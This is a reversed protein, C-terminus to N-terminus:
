AAAATHFQMRNLETYYGNAALLEAHSGQEVIRGERMVFIRDANHITSLRHAIVLTTRNRMLAELAQQVYRESEADLASTAEDLILIPANKLLARAIAIRQRQGGSLVVGHQGVQTDFGQPLEEIFSLAYAARAAERIQEPTVAGRSGYAINSAVTDNFLTVEQGVYAIHSRLNDLSFERIDRGDIYIRGTTPEYLRPLLRILSTKGSGSQGVLAITRGAPVELSVGDLAKEAREGYALVIDRYEIRGQVTDLELSGTDIERELDLMRFISDGAAIGRQINGLSNTFRKVPSQMMAMAAVFSILSGPTIGARVSDISIVFLIAAFGCMYIFQIVAGSMADTAILKMQRKQNRENEKGFKETEYSKGNFVKVIRQADIVEQTVHGVSGMSEQIRMSIRRFRKSIKRISFGLLPAVVLFILSLQINEYMMLATLGIMSLGDKLMNVLGVTMANAVQETNYLLKSLLEGSSAKDFFGSPLNLLQDFLKRRMDAVIRRGVWGSCYEGAYGTVGRVLSLAILIYPAARLIEPDQDIFSGDILPQLLKAFAPGLMSYVIMAVVSVSFVKWYPRSYQLLRRYIAFGDIETPSSQSRPM